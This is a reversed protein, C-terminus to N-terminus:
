RELGREWHGPGTHITTASSRLHHSSLTRHPLHLGMLLQALTRETNMVPLISLPPQQRLCRVGSSSLPLAPTARHDGSLLFSLEKYHNGAGTNLLSGVAVEPSLPFSHRSQSTLGAAHIPPSIASHNDGWLLLRRESRDQMM